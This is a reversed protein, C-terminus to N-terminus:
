LEIFAGTRNVFMVVEILASLLYTETSDAMHDHIKGSRESIEFFCVDLLPLLHCVMGIVYTSCERFFFVSAFAYDSRLSKSIFRLCPVNEM